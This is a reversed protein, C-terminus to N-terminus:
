KEEPFLPDPIDYFEIPVAAETTRSSARVEAMNGEPDELLKGMQPLGKGLKKTATLVVEHLAETYPLKHSRPAQNNVGEGPDLIWLYIAGPAGSLKNPQQVHAGLLKFIQPPPEAIPWGLLPTWSLYTIVYFCTTLLIATAKVPWAWRSYLNLSLLLLGLLLYGVALGIIGLLAENGM